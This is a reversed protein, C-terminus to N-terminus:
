VDHGLDLWLEWPFAFLALFHHGWSFIWKGSVVRNQTQFSSLVEPLGNAPEAVCLCQQTQQRKVKLAEDLCQVQDCFVLKTLSHFQM